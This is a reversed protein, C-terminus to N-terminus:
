KALTIGTYNYQYGKSQMCTDLRIKKSKEDARVVEDATGQPLSSGYDGNARGGCAVWDQRWSETTMSPKTWYQGYTRPKTLKEYAERDCYAAPTQPGCIMGNGVTCGSLALGICKLVVTKTLTKMKGSESININCDM